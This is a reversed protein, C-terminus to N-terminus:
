AENYLKNFEILLSVLKAANSDGDFEREAQTGVMSESPFQRNNQSEIGAGGTRARAHIWLHAQTM